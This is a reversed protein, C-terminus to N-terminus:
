EKRFNIVSFLVELSYKTELYPQVQPIFLLCGQPLCIKVLVTPQRKWARHETDTSGWDLVAIPVPMQASNDPSQYGGQQRAQDVHMGM